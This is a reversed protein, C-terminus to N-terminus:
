GAQTKSGANEGALYGTSFAAQLNYGGTVGDVDITEGCFYLGTIIKSEMTKPNIEKLAVGGKTVIADEFGRTSGIELRFDTLWKQIAARELKTIQNGKKEPDIGTVALFVPIMSQPLLTKMINAITKLGAGDLERLLRAKLTGEDLGMKLNISIHVKQKGALCEAIQGSLTLIVPGSVGFHTFLMEGYDSDLKKGDAFSTVTINKLSLGALERVYKEKTVLPVLSPMLPMVEHGLEKAMRYGDGTSGTLPYSLGGTAIVVRGAKVIKDSQALKVGCVRAKQGEGSEVIIREAKEGTMVTVRSIKLYEALAEVVDESRDSVPFVRGGREVKTEVGRSEFFKILDDNFFRGFAQYLFKGNAYSSIFEEISGSNTINCRGKGTILLKKGILTNKEILLTNAGKTRARCAAFIGAPGAGIVVVDFEM